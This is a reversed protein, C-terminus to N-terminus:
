CVCVCEWCGAVVAKGWSSNVMSTVAEKLYTGM